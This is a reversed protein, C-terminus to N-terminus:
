YKSVYLIENIIWYFIFKLFVESIYKVISDKTEVDM